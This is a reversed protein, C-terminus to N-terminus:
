RRRRRMTLDKKTGRKRGFLREFSKRRRLFCCHGRRYLCASMARLLIKPLEWNSITPSNTRVNISDSSHEVVNVVRRRSRSAFHPSTITKLNAGALAGAGSSARRLSLNIFISEPRCDDNSSVTKEGNGSEGFIIDKSLMQRKLRHQLMPM